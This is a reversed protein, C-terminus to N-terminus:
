NGIGNALVPFGSVLSVFIQAPTVVLLSLRTFGGDIAFEQALSRWGLGLAAVLLAVTLGVITPNILLTPRNEIVLAEELEEPAMGSDGNGFESVTANAPEKEDDPTESDEEHDRWIMQLLSEEFKNARQILNTPEDDWVVLLNEDRIFAGFHHKQCMPLYAMSHIVQLRQGHPLPVYSNNHIALIRKVIRTSM